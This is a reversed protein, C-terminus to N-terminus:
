GFIVGIVKHYIIPAEDIIFGIGILILIVLAIVLLIDILKDIM